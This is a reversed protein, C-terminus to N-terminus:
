EEDETPLHKDCYGIYLRSKDGENYTMEWYVCGCDAKILEKKM